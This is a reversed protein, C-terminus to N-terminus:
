NSAVIELVFTVNDDPDPNDTVPLAEIALPYPIVTEFPTGAGGWQELVFELEALESKRPEFFKIARLEDKRWFTLGQGAFHEILPIKLFSGDFIPNFIDQTRSTTQAGQLVELQPIRLMVYKDTGVIPICANLLEVSFVNHYTQPLRIKFRQASPFFNYDRLRSDVPVIHSNLIGRKNEWSPAILPGQNTQTYVPNRYTDM